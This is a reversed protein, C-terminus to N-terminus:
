KTILRRLVEVIKGFDNPKVLYDNAGAQLGAGIDKPYASASYFIIPTESDDTRIQRCVEIGSADRLRCDLIIASFGGQGALRLGEQATQCCIVQFGEKGLVFALLDCDDQNDEVYLITKADAM